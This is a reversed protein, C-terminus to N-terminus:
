QSDIAGYLKVLQEVAMLSINSRMMVEPVVPCTCWTVLQCERNCVSQGALGGVEVGM